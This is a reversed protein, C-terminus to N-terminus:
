SLDSFLSLGPPVERSGVVQYDAVYRILHPILGSEGM